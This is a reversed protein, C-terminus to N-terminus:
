RSGSRGPPTGSASSARPHTDGLRRDGQAPPTSGPGPANAFTFAAGQKSGFTSGAANWNAQGAHPADSAQNANVRISATGVITVQSWNGGLTNANARNFNDLLALTPLAPAAVAVAVAM